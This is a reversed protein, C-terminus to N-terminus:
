YRHLTGTNDVNVDGTLPYQTGGVVQKGLAAGPADADVLDDGAGSHGLCREVAVERGLVIQYEREQLAAFLDPREVEDLGSGPPPTRGRFLLQEGDEVDEVVPELAPLVEVPAREDVDQEFEAPRMGGPLGADLVEVVDPGDHGAHRGFGAQAVRRFEGARPVDQHLAGDDGSGFAVGVGGLPGLGHAPLQDLLVPLWLVLDALRDIQDLSATTPDLILGIRTTAGAVSALATFGLTRRMSAFVIRRRTSDAGTPRRPVTPVSRCGCTTGIQKASVPLTM